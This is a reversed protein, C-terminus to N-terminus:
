KEVIKLGAVDLAVTIDRWVVSNEKYQLDDMAARLKDFASKPEDLKLMGLAVFATVYSVALEHQPNGGWIQSMIHIADARKMEIFGGM